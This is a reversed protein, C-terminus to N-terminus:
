HYSYSVENQHNLRYKIPISNPEAIVRLNIYGSNNTGGPPQIKISVARSSLTMYDPESVSFQSYFFM